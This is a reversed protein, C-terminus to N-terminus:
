SKSVLVGILRYVLTEVNSGSVQEFSMEVVLIHEHLILHQQADPPQLLSCGVSASVQLM